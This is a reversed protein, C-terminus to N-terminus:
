YDKEYFIGLSTSGDQAVSGRATLAPTITVNLNIESTGDAGVTVDAYANETIYTGARLALGGSADTTVDLDDLGFGERLRGITGAGGKGSLTAIASALKLAQFPSLQDVGRGFVLRALIEDEPLAPSSSFTFSPDSALGEVIIKVATGDTETEAVLHLSPDLSGMLSVDGETLTLRHGLIDMRGRILRIGGEAAVAQTTGGLHISGGLEADLGRGRLFVANPANVTIDLGFPRGSGTSTQIEGARVRTARVDAPEAIHTVDELGGIVGFGTEPIRLEVPGLGLTGAIRAGGSLPGTLTLAGSADFDYLSPDTLGLAEPRITLDANYPASLGVPGSVSLRGGTSAAAEASVTASGGSIRASASLPDLAMQFTPLALRAGETTVNGSLSALRLPGNLVLDFVAMGSLQRPAIMDNVLALPARGTLSLAASAADAAVRGSAALSTGGPGTGTADIRWDGAELRAEGEASFAGSLGSVFLGLERLRLQGDIVPAGSETRGNATLTLEPTTLDLRELFAQGAADRGLAFDARSAGAFLKDLNGLGAGLDQGTASGDLRFAASARDYSGSATLTAGGSLSRGALGSWPALSGIQASLEGTVPADAPATGTIQLATDGPASAEAEIQWDEGAQVATAILGVAGELGEAIQTADPVDLRAEIRSAGSALTGQAALTAGPAAIDFRDLRTGTEDRQAAIALRSEGAFLRDFAAIGLGLDQAAGEATVDFPGGPLALNGAIRLEAAGSLAPGTLGAFRSLDAATLTVAGSALIDLKAVDTDLDIAGGLGYDAGELALDSLRLPGGGSKDFDFGGSLAPGIAAALAADRPVIGEAALDVHGAFRPAEGPALTGTGSLRLADLTLGDRALGALRAEGSWGEGREADFDFRLTASDIRTEGGSLPLLVPAGDPAAIEGSLSVTEPWGGAGIRATGSLRMAETSITLDAIDLVGAPTRAGDLGLRVATGFFDRYDPAFLPSPDGSLDARFHLPAAGDAGADGGTLVVQGALRPEGDTALSVEATFDDVPGEGAVTLDLPVGGPLGTLGAVIGDPGEALDLSLKLYRTENAYAGDIAFRGDEGDTRALTLKAEGAGGELRASGGVSLRVERGLVPADLIVTGAEIRGINIAVPLEPLAFDSSEAQPGDGIAVPRRAMEIERASLRDIELRGTLLASRTWDLEAERLTLWIGRDDAITLEDMTAHASLAGAFGTIRVDRGAASLNQELWGELFTKDDAEQARLPLAVVSLLVLFLAVLRRM